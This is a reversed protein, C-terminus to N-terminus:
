DPTESRTSGEQALKGVLPRGVRSSLTCRDVLTTKAGNQRILMNKAAKAPTINMQIQEQVLVM